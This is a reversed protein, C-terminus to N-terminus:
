FPSNVSKDFLALGESKLLGAGLSWVRFEIFIFM